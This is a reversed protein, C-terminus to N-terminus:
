FWGSLYSNRFDGFNRDYRSRGGGFGRGGGRMDRDYDIGFYGVDYGGHSGTHSMPSLTHSPRVPFPQRLHQDGRFGRDYGQGGFNRFGRDYGQSGGFDRFGRDYGQRGYTPQGERRPGAGFRHGPGNGWESRGFDRDYDNGFFRGFMGM